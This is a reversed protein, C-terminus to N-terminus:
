QLLLALMRGVVHVMTQVASLEAVHSPCQAAAMLADKSNVNCTSVSQYEIGVLATQGCVCKVACVRHM